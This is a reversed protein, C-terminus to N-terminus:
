QTLDINLISFFIISRFFDLLFLLVLTPIRSLKVFKKETRSYNEILYKRILIVGDLKIIFNFCGVIGIPM